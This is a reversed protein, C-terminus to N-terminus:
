AELIEKINISVKISNANDYSNKISGTAYGYFSPCVLDGKTVSVSSALTLYTTHIDTVTATYSEDVGTFIVVPQGITFYSHTTDVYVTTSSSNATAKSGLAFLPFWERGFQQVSTKFLNTIIRQKSVDNITVDYSVHRRPNILLSKTYVFGNISTFKNTFYSYSEKYTGKDPIMLYRDM